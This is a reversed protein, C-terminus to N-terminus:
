GENPSGGKLAARAAALVEQITDGSPVETEVLLRRLVGELREVRSRSSLLTRLAWRAKAAPGMTYGPQDDPLADLAELAACLKAANDKDIIHSGDEIEEADDLTYYVAAALDFLAELARAEPTFVATETQGKTDTSM